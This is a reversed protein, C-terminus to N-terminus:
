YSRGGQQLALKKRLSIEKVEKELVNNNLYKKMGGLIFILCTM